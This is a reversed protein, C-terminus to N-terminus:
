SVALAHQHLAEVVRGAGEGDVLRRGAASMLALPSPDRALALLRSALLDVTAEAATGLYDIVGEAVLAECGPRQNEAVSVVLSPLGLCCREWTTTGGAGIALDAKAMLDALHPRPAHLTINPAATAQAEIAEKNPNNAGIVVDVAVREFAPSSLASLTLATLNDPDTGGFFVFIQRVQDTKNQRRQRWEAYEPRLLAYKPGILRVTKQPLKDHYRSEMDASYNQDLLLDCDHQRNALDDIVMIRDVHDRLGREWSADIGYHDVVMWAIPGDLAAITEEADHAQSTGL